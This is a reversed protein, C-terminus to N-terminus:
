QDEEGTDGHQTIGSSGRAPDLLEQNRKAQPHLRAIARKKGKREGYGWAATSGTLLWSLIFAIARPAKIIGYVRLLLSASTERGALEQVCLYVCHFGFYFVVCYSIYRLSQQVLLLLRMRFAHDLQSQPIKAM